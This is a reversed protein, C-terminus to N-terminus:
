GKGTMQRISAGALKWVRRFIEVCIFSPLVMQRPKNTFFNEAQASQTAPAIEGPEPDNRDGTLM